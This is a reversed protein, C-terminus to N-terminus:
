STWFHRNKAKPRYLNSIDEKIKLPFYVICSLTSKAKLGRHAWHKADNGFFFWLVCSPCIVLSKQCCDIFTLYFWFAFQCAKSEGLFCISLNSKNAIFLLFAFLVFEDRRKKTLTQIYLIVQRCKNQFVKTSKHQQGCLFREQRFYSSSKKM